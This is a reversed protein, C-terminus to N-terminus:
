RGAGRASILFGRRYYLAVGRLSKVVGRYKEEAHNTSSGGNAVACRYLYRAEGGRKAVSSM